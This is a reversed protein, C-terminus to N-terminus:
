IVLGDDEDEQEEQEQFDDINKRYRKIEKQLMIVNKIAQSDGELAKEKTASYIDLLDTAFKDEQYLFLLRKYEASSEWREMYNYFNSSNTIEGGMWNKSCYTVFEEKTMASYDKKINEIGNKWQFYARRRLNKIKSLEKWFTTTATAM